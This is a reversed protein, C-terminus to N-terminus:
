GFLVRKGGKSDPGNVVESLKKQHKLVWDQVCNMCLDVYKTTREVDYLYSKANESGCTDCVTKKM